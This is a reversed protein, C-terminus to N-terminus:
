RHIRTVAARLRDLVQDHFPTYLTVDHSCRRCDGCALEARYSFSEFYLRELNETIANGLRKSFVTCVFVDGRHDVFLGAKRYLCPISRNQGRAM